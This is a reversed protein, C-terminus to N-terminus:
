ASGRLPNPKFSKNPWVGTVCIWADQKAIAARDGTGQFQWWEGMCSSKEKRCLMRKGSAAVFWQEVPYDL